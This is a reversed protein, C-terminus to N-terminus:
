AAQQLTHPTAAAEHKPFHRKKFAALYINLENTIEDVEAVPCAFTLSWQEGREGRFRFFVDVHGAEEEFDRGYLKLTYPFRATGLGLTFGDPTGDLQDFQLTINDAGYLIGTLVPKPQPGSM